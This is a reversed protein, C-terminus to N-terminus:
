ARGAQDLMRALGVDVDVQFPLIEVVLREVKHDGLIDELM